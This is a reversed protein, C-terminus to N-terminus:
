WSAAWENGVYHHENLSTTCPKDWWEVLNKMFWGVHAPYMCAKYIRSSLVDQNIAYVM